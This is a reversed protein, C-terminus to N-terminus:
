GEVEAWVQHRGGREYEPDISDTHISAGEDANSYTLQGRIHLHGIKKYKSMDMQIDKLFLEKKLTVDIRLVTDPPVDWEGAIGPKCRGESYVVRVSEDKLDFFSIYPLSQEMPRGLLREVDARTSVLPVIGRWEKALVPIAAVAAMLFWAIVTRNLKM